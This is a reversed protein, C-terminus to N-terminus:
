LGIIRKDQRPVPCGRKGHGCRGLLEVIQGLLAVEAPLVHPVPQGLKVATKQCQFDHNPTLVPAVAHLRLERGEASSKVGELFLRNADDCDAGTQRANNDGNNRHQLKKPLQLVTPIRPPNQFVVPSNRPTRGVGLGCFHDVM